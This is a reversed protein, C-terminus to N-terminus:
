STVPLDSNWTDLACKWDGNSQKKWVEVVKGTDSIPKGATGPANLQYTGYLYALDGADSVVIKTSNWTLHLGPMALVNAILAHIAAKDTAIKAQDAARDSASYTPQTNCGALCLVAVPVAVHLFKM